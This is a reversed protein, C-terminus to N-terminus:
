TLAGFHDETAHDQVGLPFAFLRDAVEVIAATRKKGVEEACKNAGAVFYAERHGAIRRSRSGL